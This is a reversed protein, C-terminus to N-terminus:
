ESGCRDSGGRLATQSAWNIASGYDAVDLAAKEPDVVKWFLVVDIDMPVTDKTLRKEAKFV